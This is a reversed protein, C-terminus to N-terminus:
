ARFSKPLLMLNREQHGFDALCQHQMQEVDGRRQDLKSRVGEGTCVDANGGCGVWRYKGVLQGFVLGMMCVVCSPFAM